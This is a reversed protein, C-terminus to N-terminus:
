GESGMRDGATVIGGSWTFVSHGCVIGDLVALGMPSLPPHVDDNLSSAIGVGDLDGM